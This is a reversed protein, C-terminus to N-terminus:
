GHVAIEDKEEKRDKEEPKVKRPTKKEPYAIRGSFGKSALGLSLFGKVNAFEPDSGTTIRFGFNKSIERLERGCVRAGGGVLVIMRYTNGYRDILKTVIEFAYESVIERVFRGFEESDGLPLFKKASRPRAIIQELILPSLNVGLVSRVHDRLHVLLKSIGYKDWSVGSDALVRGGDDVPVVDVTNFGVDCVLFPKGIRFTVAAAAAQPFCKVEEAFQGAEETIEGSLRKWEQFPTGLVLLEPKRSWAKRARELLLPLKQMLVYPDRIRTEDGTDASVGVLFASGNREVYDPHESVGYTGKEIRRVLPPLSQVLTVLAEKEGVEAVIQKVHGYGVDCAVIM